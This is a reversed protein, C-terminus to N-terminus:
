IGYNTEWGLHRKAMFHSTWSISPIGWPGEGDDYSLQIQGDEL